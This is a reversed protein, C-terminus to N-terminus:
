QEKKKNEVNLESVDLLKLTKEINTDWQRSFTEIEDDTASASLYYSWQKM